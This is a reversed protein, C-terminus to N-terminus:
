SKNKLRRNLAQRHIGLLSAAIGQNENARKLAESILYTEAEKLTPFHGFIDIMSVAEQDPRADNTRSSVGKQHIFAKFGDLSLIGSKHQAVADFVMAKMERINGPFHYTTLLSVLESPPTPKKKHQAKAAGEIFYDLLLPIDEIRERLPPIHIHHVCLRYYLDKRFQGEAIRKQIDYNSTAIIRAQSRRATDSGLPYYTQEELLRLLKVQSSEHLDGIEDLLLTGGSAQVIMGEREREAGTYAGKKHGFLADSFMTDDLGAVNVAVYPGNLASVQHISQAILEKGVGTEGTIFVPKQYSAVAEIYHFLARMKNSKTIISSFAEQHELEDELFHKKLSSIEQEALRQETIDRGVAYILNEGLEAHSTWALWKYSGDKCRYRHECYVVPLGNMLGQLEALNADLDDPHILDTFPRDLFEDLSYGLIKEFAPNLLKITGDLAAICFLDNSLNFFREHIDM